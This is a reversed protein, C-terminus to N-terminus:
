ARSKNSLLKVTLEPCNVGLKFLGQSRFIIYRIRSVWHQVWNLGKAFLVNQQVEYSFATKYQVLVYWRVRGFVRYSGLAFLVRELPYKCSVPVFESRYSSTSTHVNQLRKCLVSVLNKTGPKPIFHYTKDLLYIASGFAICAQFKQVCDSIQQWKGVENGPRPGPRMNVWLFFHISASVDEHRDSNTGTEFVEWSGLSVVAQIKSKCTILVHMKFARCIQHARGSRTEIFNPFRLVKKSTM